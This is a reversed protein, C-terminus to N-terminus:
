GYRAKRHEVASAWAANLMAFTPNEDYPGVDFGFDSEYGIAEYVRDDGYFTKLQGCICNLANAIDIRKPDIGKYWDPFHEDLWQAGNAVEEVDEQVYSQAMKEEVHSRTIAEKTITNV